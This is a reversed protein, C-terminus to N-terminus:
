EVPVCSVVAPHLRFWGRLIAMGPGSLVWVSKMGALVLVLLPMFIREMPATGIGDGTELMALRPRLLEWERLEDRFADGRLPVELLAEGAGEEGEIALEM